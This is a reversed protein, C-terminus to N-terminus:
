KTTDPIHDAIIAYDMPQEGEIGWRNKADIVATHTCQMVRDTGGIAKTKRGSDDVAVVTKYHCYLVADCWEKVLPAIHKSLKLGFTTYSMSDGPVDVRSVTEHAVLVVNANASNVVYDLGNLLRSFEDKVAVYGKGFGPAEINDWTKVECVHKTCLREAWDASDIIVTGGKLTRGCWSVEQLLETWSDPKPLRRVDLHGSGGETDIFVAGPFQAAFTTKGVGHMGYLLVRQPRTIVGSTIEFEMM